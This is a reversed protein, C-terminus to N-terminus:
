TPSQSVRWGSPVAFALELPRPAQTLLLMAEPFTAYAARAPGKEIWDRMFRLAIGAPNRARQFVPFANRRVAPPDRPSGPTVVDRIFIADDGTGPTYASAFALSGM